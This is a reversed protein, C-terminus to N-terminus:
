QDVTREICVIWQTFQRGHYTTTVHTILYVRRLLYLFILTVLIISKPSIVSDIYCVLLTFHIYNDRDDSNAQTVCGSNDGVDQTATTL